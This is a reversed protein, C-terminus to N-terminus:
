AASPEDPGIQSKPTVNSKAVARAAPRAPILRVQGGVVVRRLKRHEAALREEEAAARQALTPGKSENFKIKDAYKAMMRDIAVRQKPSFNFTTTNSEIFSAEFDSVNVDARDLAALFNARIDDQTM